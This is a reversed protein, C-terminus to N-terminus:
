RNERAIREIRDQERAWEWTEKSVYNWTSGDIPDIIPQRDDVWEAEIESEIQITAM